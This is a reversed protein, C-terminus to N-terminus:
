IDFSAYGVCVTCDAFHYYHYMHGEISEAEAELWEEIAEVAEADVLERDVEEWEEDFGAFDEITVEIDADTVEFTIDEALTELRAIIMEMTTM